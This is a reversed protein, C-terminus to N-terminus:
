YVTYVFPAPSDHFLVLFAVVTLALLVFPILIYLWTDRLFQRM